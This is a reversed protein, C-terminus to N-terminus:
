SEERIEDLLRFAEDKTMKSKGALDFISPTEGTTKSGAHPRTTNRKGAGKAAARSYIHYDTRRRIHKDTTNM